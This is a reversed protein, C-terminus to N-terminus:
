EDKPQDSLLDLVRRADDLSPLVAGDASRAAIASFFQELEAIYTGPVDFLAPDEDVEISGGHTVALAGAVVDCEAVGESGVIRIRRRPIRELYDMHVTCSFGDDFSYIGDFVDPSDIGLAGTQSARVDWGTPEGFLMLMYDVEHSLDLAVGGGRELSASYLETVPRNPRWDPLWQGVEIRAFLRQGLTGDHMLEAIRSFAGLLRLNYAVLVVAGAADAEAALADVDPGPFAAIPKEVLVSAGAAVLLRTTAVHLDTSNAVIAAAPCEAPLESIIRVRSDAFLEVASVDRATMVDVEGVNM